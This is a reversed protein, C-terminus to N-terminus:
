SAALITGVPAAMLRSLESPSPDRLGSLMRICEVHKSTFGDFSESM